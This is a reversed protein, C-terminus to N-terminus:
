LLRQLYLRHKPVLSIIDGPHILIEPETIQRPKEWKGESQFKNNYIVCNFKIARIIHSPLESKEFIVKGEKSVNLYFNDEIMDLFDREPILGHDLIIDVFDEESNRNIKYEGPFLRFVLEHYAPSEYYPQNYLRSIRSEPHIYMNIDTIRYLGRFVISNWSDEETESDELLKEMFDMDVKKLGRRPATSIM